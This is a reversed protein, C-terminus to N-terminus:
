LDVEIGRDAFLQKWTKDGHPVPEGRAALRQVRDAREYMEVRGEPDRINDCAILWWTHVFKDLKTVDLSERVEALAQALGADFGYVDQPVVLADRIARLDKEPLGDAPPEATRASM